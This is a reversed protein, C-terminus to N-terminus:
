DKQGTLDDQRVHPSQALRVSGYFILGVGILEFVMWPGLRISEGFLAVGLGISAVPDSVNLTPQVVVLNGSQLANQLVFVSFLGAAVMAWVPWTTLVAARETDFLRTSEKMLAATFAFGLGSTIGLLAARYPGRTIRAMGILYATIGGCVLTAITWDAPGPTRHGQGPSASALLTALGVTVCVIALWANRDLRVGYMLWIILMTFPLETILLPQVLALTGFNLASAQLLFGGILAGIGGLWVPKRMMDWMLSLKFADSPPATRAARRQLVSSYANCAAALVALIVAIM